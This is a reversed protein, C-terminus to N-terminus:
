FFVCMSVIFMKGVLKDFNCECYANYLMFINLEFDKWCQLKPLFYATDLVMKRTAAHLFSFDHPM